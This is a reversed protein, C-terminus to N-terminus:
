YANKHGFLCPVTMVITTIDMGISWNEIYENDYEIRKEIDDRTVIEGRYGRVQALGTLGPKARFRDNYKQVTKVFEDDHARAHPRPGVLSMDGLLINLLQPIEDLSTRRLLRGVNTVRQDNQKAQVVKDGDEAVTMSRFKYISFIRGNLGTRRQRFLVPGASDVKILLAILLLAPLLFLIATGSVCIDVIRKLISTAPQSKSVVMSTKTIQRGTGMETSKYTDLM